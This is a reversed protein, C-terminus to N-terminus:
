YKLMGGQLPRWVMDIQGLLGTYYSNSKNLVNRKQVAGIVTSHQQATCGRHFQVHGQLPITSDQM